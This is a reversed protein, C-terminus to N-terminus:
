EGGVIPKKDPKVQNMPKYQEISSSCGILVSGLFLSILIPVLLKM